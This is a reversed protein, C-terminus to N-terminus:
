WLMITLEGVMIHRHPVVGLGALGVAILWTASIAMLVQPLFRLARRPLARPLLTVGLLMPTTMAVLLMMVFAGDLPSATTASLGLAWVVIMCPLFGMLVGLLWTGSLSSTLSLPRLLAHFSWRRPPPARGLELRTPGPRVPRAPAPGARAARRARVLAVVKVVLTAFVVLGFLLAFVAGAPELVETLGRGILGALAGLAMLTTMRGLQYTLIRLAGRWAPQGQAVGAVDLGIVLPGCMGACHFSMWVLGVSLLQTYASNM